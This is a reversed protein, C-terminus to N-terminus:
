LVVDAVGIEEATKEEARTKIRRDWVGTPFYDKRITVEPFDVGHLRIEVTIDSIHEQSGIIEEAKDAIELAADRLDSVPDTKM